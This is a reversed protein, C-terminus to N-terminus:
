EWARRVEILRGANDFRLGIRGTWFVGDKEFGDSSDFHSKMHAVYDQRTARGAALLPVLSLTQDLAQKEDRWSVGLHDLSV